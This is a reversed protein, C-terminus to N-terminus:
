LRDPSFSLFALIPPRTGTICCHCLFLHFVFPLINKLKKHLGIKLEVLLDEVLQEVPRRQVGGRTSKGVHLCAKMVLLHPTVYM